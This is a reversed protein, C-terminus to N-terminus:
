TNYLVDRAINDEDTPIDTKVLPMIISVYIPRGYVAETIEKMMTGINNEYKTLKYMNTFPVFLKYVSDNYVEANIIRFEISPGAVTHKRFKEPIVTQQFFHIWERVDNVLSKPLNDVVERDNWVISQALDIFLKSSFVTYWTYQKAMEALEYAKKCHIFRVIRVDDPFLISERSVSHETLVPSYKTSLTLVGSSRLLSPTQPIAPSSKDDYTITHTNQTM